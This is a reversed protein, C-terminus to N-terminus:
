LGGPWGALALRSRLRHLFATSNVSIDHRVAKLLSLQPERQSQRLFRHAIGIRFFVASHNAPLLAYTLARGPNHLAYATQPSRSM